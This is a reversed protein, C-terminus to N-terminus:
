KLLWAGSCRGKAAQTNRGGVPPPAPPPPPGRGGGGGGGGLLRSILGGWSTRFETIASKQGTHSNCQSKYQSNCLRAGCPAGKLFFHAFHSAQLPGRTSCPTVFPGLFPDSPVGLSQSIEDLRTSLPLHLPTSVPTKLSCIPAGRRTPHASKETTAGGGGPQRRFCFDLALRVPRCAVAGGWFFSPFLVAPNKGRV